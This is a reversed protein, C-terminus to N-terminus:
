FINLCTKSRDKKNNDELAEKIVKIAENDTMLYYEKFYEILGKYEERIQM